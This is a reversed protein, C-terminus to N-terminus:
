HLDHVFLRSRLSLSCCKGQSLSILLFHYTKYNTDNETVHECGVPFVLFEVWFAVKGQTQWVVTM